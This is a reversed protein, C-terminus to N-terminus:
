PGPGVRLSHVVFEGWTPQNNGPQPGQIGEQAAIYKVMEDIVSPAWNGEPQGPLAQQASLTGGDFPTVNFYEPVPVGRERLKALGPLIEAYRDAMTEDPDWKLVVPTGDPGTAYWAGTTVGGPARDGLNFGLELLGARNVDNLNM